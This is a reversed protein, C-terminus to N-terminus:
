FCYVVAYQEPWKYYQVTYLLLSTWFLYSYILFQIMKLLIWFLCFILYLKFLILYLKFLEIQCVFANNEFKLFALLILKNKKSLSYM